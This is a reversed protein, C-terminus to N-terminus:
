KESEPKQPYRIKDTPKGRPNQIEVTPVNGSGASSGPRVIVRSGDPNTGVRVGNGKDSVNEGGPFKKDFDGNAQDVPNSSPKDWIRPGGGFREGGTAGDVPPTLQDSKNGKEGGGSNGNGNGSQAKDGGSNSVSNFIKATLYTGGILVVGGAVIGCVPGCVVTGGIFAEPAAIANRGDPDVKAYPNNDVYTYLGFGKGTNADTVIPDVSLFRGAVPDYYRQQMYVLDTEPDQVHGTYGMLSTAPGPKTGQAVAGYPEFRTSNLVATSSAGTRAVPSGLADTHVYQTGSASNVEAIAKGGLYVYATSQVGAACPGGSPPTSGDSCVYKVTAPKDPAKYTCQGNSPTWGSDCGYQTTPTSGSPKYCSSGDLTYGADCSARTKAPSTVIASLRCMTGDLRGGKPCYPEQGADQVDTRTRRCMTGDLTGGSPCSYSKISPSSETYRCRNGSVLTGRSCVYRQVPTFGCYWPTEPIAHPQQQLGVGGAPDAWVGLLTAGWPSGMAQCATAAAAPGRAEVTGSSMCAQQSPNPPWARLTGLACGSEQKADEEKSTTCQGGVPAGGDACSEKSTAGYDDAVDKVCKGDARLTYGTTKCVARSGAAYDQVQTVECQGSKLVGTDCYSESGAAKVSVCQGSRLTEGNPCVTVTSAPKSQLVGVCTTSKLEYGAECSYKPQTPAGGSVSQTSWLLQGAQSYVTIRQSGDKGTVQVRRGLGDYVYGGGLSSASMRNGLDFSYTQGGKSRINGYPDYSYGSTSGNVTVSNLRNTGDTYNLTVSRSGVNASRLNDAADYTYSATGWAGPANVTKLRDLEDYAMSRSFSGGPGPPLQDAIAAVNGNADYTYVDKLVGADENVWPLGRTNQTLSHQVGNGLRYGAVAGNPHFSLGSAFSGVQSAEGLANPVYSVATAGGPYSLSSLNGNPDYGWSFGYSQGGYSLTETSLDRLANYTYSWSSGNSDVTKLKGDPWYSRTIAPSNDGYRTSILQNVPDYSYRIKAADPVSATDCSSASSLAQGPARWDVNGAADYAQVTANIEPEITKCLRQGADYVYRRTVGGRSIATPKGLTDRSILVQVGEPMDIQALSAEAPNDLAWFRQTTVKGRPNTIATVFGSQYDQRTQLVGLESDQEIRTLRGLADYSMRKGPRTLAVSGYDRAAYSEFSLRGGLDYGKVVVKRTSAEQAADFSRTMVPRWLADLVTITRANGKSVTQRWHGAEVGYEASGVAEFVLSTATFGAPPTIRNLRGMADYGYGTTYSAASSHSTIQGLGDVVVSESSGDAYSVLQPLGLKYNDYRTRNSRGDQKWALTGDANYGYSFQPIGYAKDAIKRGLTDYDNFVAAAYGAVTVSETLGIVWLSPLDKYVTTETRSGGPGSKSVQVVRGWYDIGSAGAAATWSFNQGQQTLVRQELPQLRGHLYGDGFNLISSGVKQPYPGADYARYSQSVTRLLGGGAEFDETKLLLGENVGVKMGHTLRTSRGSPEQVQTWKTSPCYSCGPYSGEGTSPSYSYSWTQPAMGPGSLTKKQLSQVAYYAPALPATVGGNLTFCTADNSGRAHEVPEVEFRGVAGSPHTMVAASRIKNLLGNGSALCTSPAGLYLGEPTMFFPELAFTWRSGDPQVVSALDGDAAYNYTWTRTGDSVTKIRTPSSQYTFSLKRGDSSEISLVRMRDVPDYSFRVWNGFRDSIRSPLIWVETRKLYYGDAAVPQQDAKSPPQGGTRLNQSYPTSRALTSAQRSALWDFQYRVGSPSLAVFGEGAGSAALLPTCGLAWNDKTLLGYTQGDTPGNWGGATRLLIEKEGAGPIYLMNGHWYEKAQWSGEAMAGTVTPPASFRSCRDTANWGNVFGASAFVGQIRPIELDWRGFLGNMFGPTLNANFRRGASVSLESGGPLSVDQQVFELAGNYHNVKDGFLDPGLAKVSKSARVLQGQEEYYTGASANGAILAGLASVCASLLVGGRRLWQLRKM